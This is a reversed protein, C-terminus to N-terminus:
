LIALRVRKRNKNAYSEKISHQPIKSLSRTKSLPNCNVRRNMLASVEAIVAFFPFDLNFSFISQADRLPAIRVAPAKIIPLTKTAKKIRPLV